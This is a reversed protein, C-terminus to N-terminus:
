WEQCLRALLGPGPSRDTDYSQVSLAAELECPIVTFDAIVTESVINNKKKLRLKSLGVTESVHAASMLVCLCHVPKLFVSDFESSADLLPVATGQAINGCLALPTNKPHKLKEKLSLCETAIHSAIGQIVQDDILAGEYLHVVWDGVGALSQTTAYYLLRAVGSVCQPTQFDMPVVYILGAFGEDIHLPQHSVAEIEWLTRPLKEKLKQEASYLSQLAAKGCDDRQGCVFRFFIKGQVYEELLREQSLYKPILSPPYLLYGTCYLCSAPLGLLACMQVFTWITKSPVGMSSFANPNLHVFRASLFVGLGLCWAFLVYYRLLHFLVSVTIPTFQYQIGNSESSIQSM